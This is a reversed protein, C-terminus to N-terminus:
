RYEIRIEVRRNMQRSTESIDKEIPDSEGMGKTGIEVDTGKLKAALYQSVSRARKESLVQNYAVTGVDDTHGVVNIKSINNFSIIKFM